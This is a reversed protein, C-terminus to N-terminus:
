GMGRKPSRNAGLIALQIVGNPFDNRLEEIQKDAMLWAPLRNAYRYPDNIEAILTERRLQYFDNKEEETMAAWVDEPLKLPIVPHDEMGTVSEIDAANM